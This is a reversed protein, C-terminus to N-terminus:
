RIDGPRMVHVLNDARVTQVQQEALTKELADRQQNLNKISIVLTAGVGILAAIAAIVAAIVAANM